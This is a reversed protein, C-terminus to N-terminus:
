IRGIHHFEQDHYQNSLVRHCHKCYLRNAGKPKGCKICKHKDKTLKNKIKGRRRARRSIVRANEKLEAKRRIICDEGSCVIRKAQGTFTEHCFKCTYTTNYM